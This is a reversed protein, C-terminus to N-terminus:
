KVGKTSCSYGRSISRYGELKVCSLAKNSEDDKWSEKLHTEQILIVSPRIKQEDLISLMIELYVILWIYIM